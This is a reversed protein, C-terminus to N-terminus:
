SIPIEAHIRTGNGPKSNIILKGGLLEVRERMGLLGLGRGSDTVVMKQSPDFGIGDDEVDIIVNNESYEISVYASEAKAHRQINGVAEQIIRFIAIEVDSPLRRERGAVEFHIEVGSSALCSNVCANVAAPLGLDDLLSPRLDYILRHLDKSTTYLLSRINELRARARQTDTGNSAIAELGIALTALTQSTVDHLERAVRQREAEQISIVRRLLEGRIQEKAQVEEYLKINEIAVGLQQAISTILDLEQTSFERYRVLNLVGLVKEKSKLPIGIVQVERTSGDNEGTSSPPRTERVLNGQQVVRRCLSSHLSELFNQNCIGRIIQCTPRYSYGEILIIEGADAGLLSVTKDLVEKLILEMTLSQSATRTIENLSLLYRNAEMLRNELEVRNTVDRTLEVIQVVDGRTNKVPSLSAELFRKGKGPQEFEQLIRVAEGKDWVENAPCKGLTGSCPQQLGFKIEYCYRGIITFGEHRSRVSHNVQVVRFNKDLVILEEDLSDLIARLFDRSQRLQEGIEKLQLNNREIETISDRLREHLLNLMLGTTEVRSESNPVARGQLIHWFRKLKKGSQLVARATNELRLRRAIVKPTKM